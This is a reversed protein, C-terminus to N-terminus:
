SRGPYSAKKYFDPREKSPEIYRPNMVCLYRVLDMFDKYVLQPTESFGKLENNKEEKWAYHTFGYIHNTCSKMVYLKPRVMKEPDGLYGKVALHGDGIKDVPLGYNLAHSNLVNQGWDYFTQRITKKTAFQTTQGFNPDIWRVEAPKGFGQLETAKMMKAYDEPMWSFSSIKHFPQFSEDPFEGMVIVDENPFACYWGIAFPKRDHPDVVNYLTYKGQKFCEKHYEPLEEIVHVAQDFTKYIRGQLRGFVGKERMEREEDSYQSLVIEIAERSLQGGPRENCNDWIDGTIHNIKGVVKGEKTTLVKMDIYEDLIWPAFNLPTMEMITIGGARLRALNENFLARPPPESYLLLGKTEGAAQQADQDYTMVDWSWGTNTQGSGYFTKHNKQQHYANSPFLKRMLIQIVDTDGLLSEPACLRATKPWGKPWQKFIGDQFLRNKTGFMIASWLSMLLHTKGTGNGFTFINIPDGASVAKIGRVQAINHSPSTKAYALPDLLMRQKLEELAKEKTVNKLM